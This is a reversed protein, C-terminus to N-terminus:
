QAPGEVDSRERQGAQKNERDKVRNIEHARNQQREHECQQQAIQKARNHARQSSHVDAWYDASCQNKQAQGSCDTVSDIREGRGRCAPKRTRGVTQM